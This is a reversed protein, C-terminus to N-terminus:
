WVLYSKNVCKVCRQASINRPLNTNISCKNRVMDNMAACRFAIGGAGNGSPWEKFGDRDFLGEIEDQCDTSKSQEMISFTSLGPVGKTLHMELIRKGTSWDFLVKSCNGLRSLKSKGPCPSVMRFSMLLLFIDSEHIM